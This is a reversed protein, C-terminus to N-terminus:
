DPLLHGTHKSRGSRIEPNWLDDSWASRVLPLMYPVKQIAQVTDLFKYYSYLNYNQTTTQPPRARSLSLFISTIIINKKTKTRGDHKATSYLLLLSHSSTPTLPLHSCLSPPM